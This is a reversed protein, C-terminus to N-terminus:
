FFFFSFNKKGSKTYNKEGSLFDLFVFGLSSDSLVPTQGIDFIQDSVTQWNTIFGKEYNYNMYGALLYLAVVPFTSLFIVTKRLTQSRKLYKTREEFDFEQDDIDQESEDNLLIDGSRKGVKEESEKKKWKKKLLLKKKHQNSNISNQGTKKRRILIDKNEDKDDNLFESKWGSSQASSGNKKEKKENEFNQKQIIGSFKDNYLIEIKNRFIEMNSRLQLITEKRMQSLIKFGKQEFDLIFIVSFIYALAMFVRYFQEVILWDQRKKVAWNVIDLILNRFEIAIEEGIIRLKGTFETKVVKFHDSDYVSPNSIEQHM